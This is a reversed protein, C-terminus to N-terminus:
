AANCVTQQSVRTNQGGIMVGRDSFINKELYRYSGYHPLYPYVM